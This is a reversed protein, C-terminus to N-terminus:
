EALDTPCGEPAWSSVKTKQRVAAPEKHPHGRQRSSTGTIQEYLLLATIPFYDRNSSDYPVHLICLSVFVNRIQIEQIVDGSM